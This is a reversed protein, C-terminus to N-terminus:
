FSMSFYFGGTVSVSSSRSPSVILCPTGQVEYLISLMEASFEDQYREIWQSRLYIVLKMFWLEELPQCFQPRCTTETSTLNTHPKLRDLLASLLVLLWWDLCNILAHVVMASCALWQIRAILGRIVPHASSTIVHLLYFFLFSFHLFFLPFHFFFSPGPASRWGM